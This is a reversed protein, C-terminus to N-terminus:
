MSTRHLASDVIEKWPGEEHWRKELEVGLGSSLRNVFNFYAVTQAVCLIEKDTLGEDRLKDIDDDMISSPEETLQVAYEVM